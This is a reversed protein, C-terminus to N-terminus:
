GRTPSRHGLFVYEMHAWSHWGQWSTRNWLGGFLQAIRLEARRCPDAAGSCRRRARRWPPRREPRARPSPLAPHRRPSDRAATRSASRGSLPSGPRGVGDVRPRRAGPTWFPLLRPLRRRTQAAPTVPTPPRNLFWRGSETAVCAAGRRLARKMRPCRVAFSRRGRPPAGAAHVARGAPSRRAHTAPQAADPPVPSRSPRLRPPPRPLAFPRAPNAAGLRM